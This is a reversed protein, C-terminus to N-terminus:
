SLLQGKQLNLLISVIWNFFRKRRGAKKRLTENVSSSPFVRDAVPDYEIHPCSLIVKGKGYRSGIIAAHQPETHYSGIVKWKAKSVEEPDFYCGGMQFFRGVKGAKYYDKLSVEAVRMDGMTYTFPTYYSGKAKGPYFALKRDGKVSFRPNDLEFEVEKAGLYAGGCIGLYSGGNAVYKRFRGATAVDIRKEYELDRGGPVILLRCGIEWDKKLENATILRVNLKLHKYSRLSHLLHDLLERSVGEDDYVLISALCQTLLLALCLSVAKVFHKM